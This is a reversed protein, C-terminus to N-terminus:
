ILGSEVDNEDAESESWPAEAPEEATQISCVRSVLVLAGAIAFVRWLPPRVVLVPLCCGLFRIRDIRADMWNSRMELDVAHVGISLLTFHICRMCFMGHSEGPAYTCSLAGGLLVSMTIGFWMEKSTGRSWRLMCLALTCWLGEIFLQGFVSVPLLVGRLTQLVRAVLAVIVLLNGDLGDSRPGAMREMILMTLVFVYAGLYESTKVYSIALLVAGMRGSVATVTWADM